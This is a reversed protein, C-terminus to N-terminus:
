SAKPPPCAKLIAAYAAAFGRLSFSDTVPVAKPGISKASLSKAHAFAIVTAHGDRAFASRGATYFALTATDATVQVIANPQFAFGAAIAVADRGSPRETVTLVVDGRGKIAPAPATARTFAYCTMAGAEANTAATWDDFAGIKRPGAATTAPRSTASRAPKKPEAAMAPVCAVSLLLIVSLARM